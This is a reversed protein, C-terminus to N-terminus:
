RKLRQDLWKYADARAAATFERGSDPYAAQLM